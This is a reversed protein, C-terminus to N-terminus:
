EAVWGDIPGKMLRGRAGRWGGGWQGARGGGYGCKRGSALGRFGPQGRALGLPVVSLRGGTWPQSPSSSMLRDDSNDGAGPHWPWSPRAPDPPSFHILSPDPRPPGTCHARAETEEGHPPPPNRQRPNALTLLPLAREAGGLGAGPVRGREDGPVETKKNTFGSHLPRPSPGMAGLVCVQTSHLQGESDLFCIGISSVVIDENPFLGGDRSAGMRAVCLVHIQKPSPGMDVFSM